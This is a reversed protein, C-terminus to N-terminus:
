KMTSNRSVSENINGTSHRRPADSNLINNIFSVFRFTNKSSKEKEESDDEDCDDESDDESDNEDYNEEDDCEEESDDESDDVVSITQRGMISTLDNMQCNRSNRTCIFRYEREAEDSEKMFCKGKRKSNRGDSTLLLTKFETHNELNLVNMNQKNKKEVEKHYHLYYVFNLFDYYNRTMRDIEDIIVYDIDQLISEGNEDFSYFMSKFNKKTLNDKGSYGNHELVNSIFIGKREAIKLCRLLQTKLSKEKQCITKKHSSKDSKHSSTRLYIIGNKNQKKSKSVIDNHLKVIPELQTWFIHLRENSSGINTLPEETVEGTDWKINVKIKKLNEKNFGRKGPRFDGKKIGDWTRSPVKVVTAKKYKYEKVM